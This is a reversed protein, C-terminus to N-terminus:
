KGKRRETAGETTCEHYYKCFLCVHRCNKVKFMWSFQQIIKNIVRM